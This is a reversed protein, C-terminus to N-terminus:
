SAVIPASRCKIQSPPDALRWIARHNRNLMYLAAMGGPEMRCAIELNHLVLVDGIIGRENEPETGLYAGSWLNEQM